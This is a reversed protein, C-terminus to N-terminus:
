RAPAARELLLVGDLLVTDEGDPGTATRERTEVLRCSHVPVREVEYFVELGSAGCAPCADTM